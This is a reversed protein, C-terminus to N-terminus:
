EESVSPLCIRAFGQPNNRYASPPGGCVREFSRSFAATTSYGLDRAVEAITKGPLLLLQQARAVRTQNLFHRFTMGTRERFLRGLHTASLGLSAAVDNRTVPDGLHRMAVDCAQAIVQDRPATTERLVKDALPLLQADFWELIDPTTRLAAMAMAYRAEIRDIEGSPDCVERLSALVNLVMQTFLCLRVAGNDGPYAAVLSLQTEIADEFMSRDRELAARRITAGLATMRSVLEELSTELEANGDKLSLSKRGLNAHAEQYANALSVFPASADSAGIVLPQETKPQLAAKLKDATEQVRLGRLLPNRPRGPSLLVVLEDPRISCIITNLVDDLLRQAPEFLAPLDVTTQLRKRAFAASAREPRIVIVASPPESFGLAKARATIDEPTADPHTLAYWAFDRELHSQIRGFMAERSMLRAVSEILVGLGRAAAKLRSQIRRLAPGDVVDLQAFAKALRKRDLGPLDRVRGWVDDFGHPLRNACAIQGGMVEGVRKGNVVIPAIVESLGAHCQYAWSRGSKRVRAIWKADCEHCRRDGEPHARLAACFASQGPPGLPTASRLLDALEDQWEFERANGVVYQEIGETGFWVALAGLGLEESLLRLYSVAFAFAPEIQGRVQELTQGSDRGITRM